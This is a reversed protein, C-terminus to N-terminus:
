HDITHLEECCGHCLDMFSLLLLSSRTFRPKRKTCTRPLFFRFGKKCLKKMVDDVNDVVVSGIDEHNYSNVLPRLDGNYVKKVYRLPELVTAEQRKAVNQPTEIIMLKVAPLFLNM